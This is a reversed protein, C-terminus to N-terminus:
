RENHLVKLEVHSEHITERTRVQFQNSDRGRAHMCGQRAQLGVAGVRTWRAVFSQDAERALECIACRCVKGGYRVIGQRTAEKICNRLGALNHKVWYDPSVDAYRQM